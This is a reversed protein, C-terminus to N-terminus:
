NLVFYALQIVDTPTLTFDTNTWLVATVAGGVLVPVYDHTLRQAHGNVFVNLGNPSGSLTLALLTQGLAPVLADIRASLNGAAGNTGAAGRPGPQGAYHM